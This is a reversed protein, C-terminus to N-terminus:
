EDRTLMNLEELLTGVEENGQADLDKLQKKIERIRNERKFSKLTQICDEWQAAKHLVIGEDGEILLGSLVQKLPEEHIAEVLARDVLKSSAMYMVLKIYDSVIFDEAMVQALIKERLELSTAMFFLLYEQAKQFKDKKNKLPLSLVQRVNYGTKKIKALVLEEDVRLHKAVWKVYHRQVVLDKEQQLLPSIEQLIAPVHEIKTVDYRSLLRSFKFKIIPQAEQICQQFYHAGKELLVDAPDKAELSIVYIQFGAQKLSEYSREISQQGAQDSDMALYVTDTFRRLTQAHDQTLATGMSAISECFGFQHAIIVDMYGEMVIARGQDRIANKAKDLGYLLRRKNFLATEETNVYKPSDPRHQIQRAGFGVTRGRHDMVPFVVRQRFRPKIVGEETVAVLGAKQLLSDEEQHQFIAKPDWNLPAFGLSFQDITKQTLGRQLFYHAGESQPLAKRFYDRAKSLVELIQQRRHEELNMEFTKEEEIVGIGAKHAIHTIAEVFSLNDIKMMFGIHDGSNHCGFCHWLQKEPSVTFSPSKESHFPCLGIFNRGRKKLPVYDSIVSVIDPYAKVQDVTEKAIM